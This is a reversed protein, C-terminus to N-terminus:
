PVTLEPPLLSCVFGYFDVAAKFVKQYEEETPELVEGPYRYATAYPTIQEAADLWENFRTETEAALAVLLRLDHTKSFPIDNYVLWGKIVKEALQQCHYIATDLYLEKGRALKKASLLDRRAKMIWNRVLSRKADM